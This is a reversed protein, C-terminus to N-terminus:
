TWAMVPSVSALMARWCPTETLATAAAFLKGAPDVPAVATGAPVRIMTGTRRDHAVQRRRDAAIECRPATQAVSCLAVIQLALQGTVPGELGGGASADPPAEPDQARAVDLDPNGGSLM